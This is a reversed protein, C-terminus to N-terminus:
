KSQNDEKGSRVYRVAPQVCELPGRPDHGRRDRVEDAAVAIPARQHPPLNGEHAAAQGPLDSFTWWAILYCSRACVPYVCFATLILCSSWSIIKM